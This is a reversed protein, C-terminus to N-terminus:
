GGQEAEVRTCDHHSERNNVDGCILSSVDSLALYGLFLRGMV